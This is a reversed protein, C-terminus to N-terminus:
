SAVLHVGSRVSPLEVRFTTGEGEVSEVRISGGHAEVIAKSIALGLGTGQISAKTAAGTRFFKNFLREQDSEGIGIGSDRVEIWVGDPSTGAAVEVKGGSPTFKIANSILNDLLQALRGEDGALPLSMSEDGVLEINATTAAPAAATLAQAITTGLDIRDQDVTLQGDDIQAIFLLDSTLRVLRHSNRGIVDTYSRQEETLDQESLLELYGLISTLPTRVEHSVLAVFEDKLGDIERLKENAQLEQELLREREAEVRNRETVDRANLVIGRVDRDARLDTVNAELARLDHQSDQLRFEVKAVSGTQLVELLGPKDDREVFDFIGGDLVDAESCGLMRLVSNSAYKCHGDSFVLVLDTTSTVLSQFHATRRRTITVLAWSLLGFVIIGVGALLRQLSVLTSINRDTAGGISHEVNLAVNSTIGTLITLRKLPPMTQPLHEHATPAFPQAEGALLESGTAVLDHILSLEQRLQLRALGGTLAPIRVDDDDGAVGPAVGGHLLAAGSQQLDHAIPVAASPLGALGLLVDATYRETLTRQRAAIQLVDAQHTSRTATRSSLVLSMATYVTFALMIAAITKRGSVTFPRFRSQRARM